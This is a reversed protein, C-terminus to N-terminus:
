VKVPILRIREAVDDVNIVRVTITSSLKPVFGKLDRKLIFGKVRNYFAVLVGRDNVQVVFGDAIKEEFCKDYSSIITPLKSNVLGEKRTLVVRNKDSDVYLIRCKM